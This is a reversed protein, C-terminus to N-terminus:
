RCAAPVQCCAAYLRRLQPHEPEIELGSVLALRAAEPDDCGLRALALTAALAASGSGAATMLDVLRAARHAEGAEMLLTACLGLAGVYEPGAKVWLAADSFAREADDMALSARVRWVLIEPCAATDADLRDLADLAQSPQHALMAWRVRRAVVRSSAYEVTELAALLLAAVATRGLGLVRDVDALTQEPPANVVM